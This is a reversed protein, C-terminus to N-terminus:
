KGINIDRAAQINTSDKGSKQKQVIKNTYKNKILIGLLLSLIFVGIGSFIWERNELFWEMKESV